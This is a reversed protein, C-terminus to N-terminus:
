RRMHVLALYRPYGYDNIGIMLVIEAVIFVVEQINYELKKRYIASFAYLISLIELLELINRVM